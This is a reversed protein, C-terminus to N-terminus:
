IKDLHKALRAEIPLQLPRFKKVLNMNEVFLIANEKGLSSAGETGILRRSDDISMQLAIVTEFDNKITNNDFINELGKPNDAYIVTHVGNEGGDALIKSLLMAENSLNYDPKKFSRLKNLGFFFLYKEEEPEKGNEAETLESIINELEQVVNKKNLIVVNMSSEELLDIYQQMLGFDPHNQATTDYFYYKKKRTTELALTSFISIFLNLALKDHIGSILINAGAEKQLEISVMDELSYPQGIPLIISHKDVKVKQSYEEFTPRVDERFIRTNASLKKDEAYKSIASLIKEDEDDEMFYTQFRENGSTQGNKANYIGEGPRTLLKADVNNTSLAKMSDDESCQLVIRVALQAITTSPLTDGGLSQSALIMNIGFSRGKKSLRDFIEVASRKISDEKSFLEQFEDLVLLARPIIKEPNKKNYEAINQVGKSSFLEERKQLEKELGQLVSHAMERDSTISTVDVHPLTNDVYRIFEIGGKMDILYLRLESPSYNLILDTIIMHLLNSKGSGSRGILLAHAEIKNNIEFLQDERGAKGINAEIGDSASKNWFNKEQLLNQIKEMYSVKTDGVNELKYNLYDSINKNLTEDLLDNDNLILKADSYLKFNEDKNNLPMEIIFDDGDERIVISMDSIDQLIKNNDKQQYENEPEPNIKQILLTQIGTRTSNQIISKVKKLSENKFSDLIDYAILIQYPEEVDGVGINYKSISEYENKLYKTNVLSIFKTLKVLEEEISRDDTYVSDYFSSDLGLLASCNDGMGIPDVITLKTKGDMLTLIERYIISILLKSLKEKGRKTDYKFIINNAHILPLYAKILPSNTGTNYRFNGIRIYKEHNNVRLQDIEKTDITKNKDGQKIAEKLKQTKERFNDFLKYIENDFDVLNFRQLKISVKHDFNQEYIDSLIQMNAAYINEAEKTINQLQKSKDEFVSRQQNLEHISQMKQKEIADDHKKNNEEIDINLQKTLNDLKETLSFIKTKYKADENIKIQFYKRTTEINHQLEAKRKLSAPLFLKHIINFKTIKEAKTKYHEGAEKLQLEIYKEKDYEASLMDDELNEKLEYYYDTLDEETQEKKELINQLINNNTDQSNKISSNFAAKRHALIEEVRKRRTYIDYDTKKYDQKLWKSFKILSEVTNQESFNEEDIICNQLNQITQLMQQENESLIDTINKLTDM